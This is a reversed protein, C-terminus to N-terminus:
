AFLQNGEDIELNHVIIKSSVQIQVILTLDNDVFRYFNAEYGKKKAM